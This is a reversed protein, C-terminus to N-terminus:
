DTKPEFTLVVRGEEVRGVVLQGCGPCEATTQLLPDSHRTKRLRPVISRIPADAAMVLLKETLARLQRIDDDNTKSSMYQLGQQIAAVSYRLLNMEIATPLTGAESALRIVGANNRFDRVATEMEPTFPFRGRLAAQRGDIADLSAVLTRIRLLDESPIM